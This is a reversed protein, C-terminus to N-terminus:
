GKRRKLEKNILSLERGTQGAVSTNEQARRMLYPVVDKVPGYPMYKAVNYGANALNFSINDSMGFLQSFYVKPTNYPIQHEEMYQAALMCSNENHTGIFVSITDLHQLCFLSAANYDTDTAQKNLQIPSPYGKSAARAREKEMYAGRVLKAGLIYGKTLADQYSNKLWALTTHCYLQYTNYIFAKEKNFKEMMADALLNVAHQIWTEEADILVMINHEKGARCITEVRNFVRQWEEQEQVTLTEDSHIKELLAFRAFGTIKICTFPINPETAAHKIAKLFEPVAKDFEDEGEKGEVSYDLIVGMHYQEMKNATQAAEQLNEGGCFQKFITNKVAAKVPLGVKMAWQTFKMGLSSVTPFNMTSFLFQAQKLESTTKYRFAIETNDFSPLM